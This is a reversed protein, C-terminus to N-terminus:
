PLIGSRMSRKQCGCRSAEELVRAGECFKADWEAEVKDQRGGSFGAVRLRGWGGRVAAWPFIARGAEAFQDVKDVVRSSLRM